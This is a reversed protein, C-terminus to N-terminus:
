FTGYYCRIYMGIISPNFLLEPVTFRENTLRLLSQEEMNSGQSIEGDNPQLIYGFRRETAMQAVTFDPLVYTQTIDSHISHRRNM